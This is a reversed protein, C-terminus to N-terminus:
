EVQMCKDLFLNSRLLNNSMLYQEYIEYRLKNSPFNKYLFCLNIYYYM